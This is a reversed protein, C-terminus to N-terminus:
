DATCVLWSCYVAELVGAALRPTMSLCGQLGRKWSPLESNLVRGVLSSSCGRSCVRGEKRLSGPWFPRELGWVDKLIPWTLFDGGLGRAPDTHTRFCGPISQRLLRIWTCIGRWVMRM